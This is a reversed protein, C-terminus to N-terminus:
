RSVIELVMEVFVESSVRTWTFVTNFLVSLPVYLKAIIFSKIVFNYLEKNLNPISVILALHLAIRGRMLPLFHKLFSSVDLTLGFLSFPVPLLHPSFFLFFSFPKSFLREFSTFSFIIISFSTIM